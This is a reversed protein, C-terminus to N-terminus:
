FAFDVRDLEFGLFLLDLALIGLAKLRVVDGIAGVDLDLLFASSLPLFAKM